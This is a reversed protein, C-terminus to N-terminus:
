GRSNMQQDRLKQFQANIEQAVAASRTEVDSLGLAGDWSSVVYLSGEDDLAQASVYCAGTRIVGKCFSGFSATAISLASVWHSDNVDDWEDDEDERQRSKMLLRFDQDVIEVGIASHAAVARELTERIKGDVSQQAAPEDDATNATAPVTLPEAEADNVAAVAKPMAPSLAAPEADSPHLPSSAVGDVARHAALAAFVRNAVRAIEDKNIASFDLASFQKGPCKASLRQIMSRIRPEQIAGLSADANFAFFVSHFKANPYAVLAELKEIQQDLAAAEDTQQMTPKLFVVLADCAWYMPALLKHMPEQPKDAGRTSEGEVEPVYISVEEFEEVTRYSAIPITVTDGKTHVSVQTGRAKFELGELVDKLVQRVEPHEHCVAIVTEAALEQSRHYSYWNKALNVYPEWPDPSTLAISSEGGGHTVGHNEHYRDEASQPFREAFQAM